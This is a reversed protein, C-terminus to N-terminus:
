QGGGIEYLEAQIAEVEDAVAELRAEVLHRGPVGDPLVRLVHWLTRAKCRQYALRQELQGVKPQDAAQSFPVSRMDKEQHSFSRPDPTVLVAVGSENFRFVAQM